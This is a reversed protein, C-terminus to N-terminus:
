RKSIYFQLIFNFLYYYIITLYIIFHLIFNTDQLKSNYSFFVSVTLYVILITLFYDLPRNVGPVIVIFIVIFIYNYFDNEINFFLLTWMVVIVIFACFFLIPAIM